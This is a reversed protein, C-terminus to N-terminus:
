DATAPEVLGYHGDYRRYLVNGRRTQADVFFLFPEGSLNIRGVANELLMVPAPVPDTVVGRSKRDPTPHLQALGIPGDAHRYVVAEEGTTSDTFLHFDNDLLRMELAAEEATLASLAYSKRRILEREDPPRPFYEPRATPLSGHRWEGASAIGTDHRHARELEELDELNRRLRRELLDIAEVIHEAAVHARVPRGNVDLTAKAIAPRQLAPDREVRLVIRAHLVPRPAFEAVRLILERAHETVRAELEDDAVLTLPFEPQQEPEIM